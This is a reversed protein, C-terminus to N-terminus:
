QSQKKAIRATQLRSLRAPSQYVEDLVETMLAVIEEAEEQTVPDIFDGHAMENGFHRIQHAQDRTHKRIHDSEQLADIRKELNLGGVQKDKTIAEIVARAM